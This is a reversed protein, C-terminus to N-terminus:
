GFVIRELWKMDLNKEVVDALKEFEAELNVGSARGKLPLGKKARLKNLILNRFGPQDFVGHLYSGM